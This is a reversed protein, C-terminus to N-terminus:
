STQIANFVKNISGKLAEECTNCNGGKETPKLTITDDKGSGNICGTINEKNICFQAESYWVSSHTIYPQRRKDNVDFGCCEFIIEVLQIELVPQSSNKEMIKQDISKWAEQVLAIEKKETIGLCAISIFCQLFFILGLFIIYHFILSQSQRLIAAIGFIAVLMLFLECAAIGGVIPLNKIIYVYKVYSCTAVLIFAVIMFAFNIGILSKKNFSLSLFMKMKRLNVLQFSSFINRTGKTSCCTVSKVLHNRYAFKILHLM